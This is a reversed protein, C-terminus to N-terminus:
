KIYNVGGVSTPLPGYFDISLIENPKNVVIPQVLEDYRVTLHKSRQCIECPKLIKKINKLMKPAFFSEDLIKFTKYAGVHGYAEHIDTVFPILIRNPIVVKNATNVIKYILDDQIKYNDIVSKDKNELRLKIKQCYEDSKQSNVLSKILKITEKKLEIKNIASIIIDTDNNLNSNPHM